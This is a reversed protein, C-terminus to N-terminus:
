MGIAVVIRVIKKAGTTKLRHLSRLGAGCRNQHPSPMTAYPSPVRM